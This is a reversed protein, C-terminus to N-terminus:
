EEIGYEKIKRYLTRESIGLDNAANKRKGKHKKLARLILEREKDEISLSEDITEAPNYNTKEGLVIAQGAGGTNNMVEERMLVPNAYFNAHAMENAAFNNNMPPPTGMTLMYQKLDNIDKKIDFLMKYLLERESFNSGSGNNSGDRQDM